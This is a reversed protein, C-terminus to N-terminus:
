FKATCGDGGGMEPVNEEEWVSVRHGNILLEKNGEEGNLINTQQSTNTFNHISISNKKQM